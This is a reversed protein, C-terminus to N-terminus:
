ASLMDIIEVMDGSNAEIEDADYVSEDDSIDQVQTSTAAKSRPGELVALWSPPPMGSTLSHDRGVRRGPDLTGTFGELRSTQYLRCSLHTHIICRHEYERSLEAALPPNTMVTQGVARYFDVHDDLMFTLLRKIEINLHVIEKHARKIGFYLNMAEQGPGEAWPKSRIDSHSDCLLDFDAISAMQVVSAWILSPRPPNLLAAAKNYNNLATTIAGLRTKLSRGM